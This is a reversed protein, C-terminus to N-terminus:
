NFDESTGETEVIGVFTLDAENVESVEPTKPLTIDEEQRSMEEATTCSVMLAAALFLMAMSIMRKVEKM